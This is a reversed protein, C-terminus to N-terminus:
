VSKNEKTKQTFNRIILLSYFLYLMGSFIFNIYYILIPPDKLQYVKISHFGWILVNFPYYVLVACNFWFINEKLINKYDNSERIKDFLFLSLFILLVSELLVTNTDSDFISQFFIINLVEIALLFIVMAILIRDWRRNKFFSAYILSYFIYEVITFVHYVISNDRGLNGSIYKAILESGLTVIILGGLLRFPLDIKKIFVLSTLGALILSSYYFIHYFDSFM